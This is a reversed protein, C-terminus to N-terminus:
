FRYFVGTEFGINLYNNRSFAGDVIPSLNRRIVPSFGVGFGSESLYSLQIQASIVPSFGNNEILTIENLNPSLYRGLSRKAWSFHVGVLPQIAFKGRSKEYGLYLPISLYTFRNEGFIAADEYRIQEGFQFMSFGSGFSFHKYKFLQYFSFDISSISREEKERKERYLSPDTGASLLVQSNHVDFSSNVYSLGFGVGTQFKWPKLVIVKSNENLVENSVKKEEPKEDLKTTLSDSESDLKEITLIATLEETKLNESENSPRLDFPSNQNTDQQIITSERFTSTSKNQFNNILSLFNDPLFNKTQTKTTQILNETSPKIEEKTLNESKSIQAKQLQPSNKKPEVKSQVVAANSKPTSLKWAAFGSAFLVFFVGLWLGIGKRRKTKQNLKKELDELFVAPIEENFDPAFLDRLKDNMFEQQM